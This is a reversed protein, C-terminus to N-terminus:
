LRPITHFLTTVVVGFTLEGIVSPHPIIAPQKVYSYASDKTAFKCTFPGRGIDSVILCIKSFPLYHFSFL